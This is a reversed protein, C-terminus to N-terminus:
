MGSVAHKHVCNQQEGAEEAERLSREIPLFPSRLRIHAEDAIGKM